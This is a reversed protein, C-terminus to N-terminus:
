SSPIPKGKIKSHFLLSSSAKNVKRTEMTGVWRLRVQINTYQIWAWKINIRLTNKYTITPSEPTPLDHRSSFSSSLADLLWKMLVMPTSTRVCETVCLPSVYLNCTCYSLIIFYLLLQKYQLKCASISQLDVPQVTCYIM